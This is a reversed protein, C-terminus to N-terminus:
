PHEVDARLVVWHPLADVDGVQLGHGQRQVDALVVQLDAGAIVLRVLHEALHVVHQQAVEALQLDQIGGVPLWKALRVLVGEHQGHVLHPQHGPVQVQQRETAREAAEIPLDEAPRHVVLLCRVVVAVVNAGQGRPGVPRVAAMGMATHRMLAGLAVRLHWCQRVRGEADLVRLVPLEDEGADGAAVVGAGGGDGGAAWETVAGAGADVGGEAAAADDGAGAAPETIAAVWGAMAASSTGAAAVVFAGATDLGAGATAAAAETTDGVLFSAAGSAGEGDAGFRGGGGGGGRDAACAPQPPASEGLSCCATWANNLDNWSRPAQPRSSSKGARTAFSSATMRLSSGCQPLLDCSM